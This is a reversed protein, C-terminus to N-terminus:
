EAIDILRRGLGILENTDVGRTISDELDVVDGVVWRRAIVRCEASVRDHENRLVSDIDPTQDYQISYV